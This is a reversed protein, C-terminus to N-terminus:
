RSPAPSRKGEDEHAAGPQGKALSTSAGSRARMSADGRQELSGIPYVLDAGRPEAARSTARSGYAGAGVFGLRLRVRGAASASAGAVAGTAAPAADAALAGTIAAAERIQMRQRMRRLV